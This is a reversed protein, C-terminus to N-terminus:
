HLSVASVHRGAPKKAATGFFSVDDFLAFFAAIGVISHLQSRVIPTLNDLLTAAEALGRWASFSQM